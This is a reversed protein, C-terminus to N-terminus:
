VTYTYGESIKDSYLLFQQKTLKKNEPSYGLVSRYSSEEVQKFCIRTNFLDKFKVAEKTGIQSIGIVFINYHRGVALLDTIAKTIAKDICLVLLEDFALYLVKSNQNRYKLNDLLHNLFKLINDNGVRRVSGLTKFDDYFSNLLVVNKGKLASEICKTKGQGSLGCVLIHPTITMDVILPKKILIYDKYGIRLQFDSLEKNNIYRNYLMTLAVTDLFLLENIM